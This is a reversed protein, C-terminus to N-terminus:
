APPSQPTPEPGTGLKFRIWDLRTGSPPDPMSLYKAQHRSAPVARPEESSEPAPAIWWVEPVEGPVLTAVSVPQGPSADLVKMWAHALARSQLASEARKEAESLEDLLSQWAYRWSSPVARDASGSAEPPFGDKNHGSAWLVPEPEGDALRGRERMLQKVGEPADAVSGFADRLIDECFLGHRGDARSPCACSM